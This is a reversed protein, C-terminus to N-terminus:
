KRELNFSLKSYEVWPSSAVHLRACGNHRCKTLGASLSHARPPQFRGQDQMQAYNLGRKYYAVGAFNTSRSHGIWTYLTIKGYKYQSNHKNPPGAAAPWLITPSTYCYLSSVAQCVRVAERNPYPLPCSPYQHPPPPHSLQLTSAPNCLMEPESVSLTLAIEQFVWGGM